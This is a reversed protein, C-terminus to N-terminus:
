LTENIKRFTIIGFHYTVSWPGSCLIQPNKELTSLVFVEFYAAFKSGVACFTKDSFRDQLFACRGM